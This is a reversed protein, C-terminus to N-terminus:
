LLSKVVGEPIIAHEITANQSYIPFNDGAENAFFAFELYVKWSYETWGFDPPNDINALEIDIYRRGGAEGRLRFLNWEKGNKHGPLTYKFIQDALLEDERVRVWIYNDNFDEFTAGFIIPAKENGKSPQSLTELSKLKPLSITINEIMLAKESDKGEMYTDNLDISEKEKIAALFYKLSADSNAGSM